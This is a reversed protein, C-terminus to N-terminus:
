RFIENLVIHCKRLDRILMFPSDWSDWDQIFEVFCMYGSETVNFKGFKYM